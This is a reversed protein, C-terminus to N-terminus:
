MKGNGAPCPFAKGHRLYPSCRALAACTWIETMRSALISGPTIKRGKKSVHYLGLLGKTGRPNKEEHDL